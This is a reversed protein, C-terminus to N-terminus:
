LMGVVRDIAAAVVRVDELLHEIRSQHVRRYPESVKKSLDRVARRATAGGQASDVGHVIRNRYDPLEIGVRNRLPVGQGPTCAGSAELEQAVWDTFGPRGSAGGDGAAHPPERARGADTRETSAAGELVRDLTKTTPKVAAGGQIRWRKRFAEPHEDIFRVATNRAFAEWATVLSVLASEVLVDDAGQAARRALRAAAEIPEGNRKFEIQRERARIADKVLSRHSWLIQIREVQEILRDYPWAM